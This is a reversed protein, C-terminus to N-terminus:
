VVTFTCTIALEVKLAIPLMGHYASMQLTGKRGDDSCLLTGVFFTLQSRAVDKGSCTVKDDWHNVWFPLPQLISHDKETVSSPLRFSVSKMAAEYDQPKGQKVSKAM